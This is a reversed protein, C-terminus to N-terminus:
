KIEGTIPDYGNLGSDLKYKEALRGLLASKREQLIKHDKRKKDMEVNFELDAVRKKANIAIVELEVIRLEKVSLEIQLIEAETLAKPPADVVKLKKVVKKKTM